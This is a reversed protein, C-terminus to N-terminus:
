PPKSVLPRKERPAETVDCLTQARGWNHTVPMGAARRGAGGGGWKGEMRSTLLM